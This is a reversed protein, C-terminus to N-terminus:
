FCVLQCQSLSVACGLVSPRQQFVGALDNALPTPLADVIKDSIISWVPCVMKERSFPSGCGPLLPGKANLVANPDM